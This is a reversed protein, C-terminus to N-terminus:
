RVRELCQGGQLARPEGDARQGVHREAHRSAGDLLIELPQAERGVDVTEDGRDIDAQALRVAGRVLPERCRETDSQLLDGVDAVQRGVDRSRRAHPQM